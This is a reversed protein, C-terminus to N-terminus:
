EELLQQAHEATITKGDYIGVLLTKGFGQDILERQYRFADMINDFTKSTTYRTGKDNKDTKSYDLGLYKNVTQIPISEDDKFLGVQVKFKVKSKDVPRQIEDMSVEEELGEAMPTSENASLAKQILVENNDSADGGQGSVGGDKEAKDVLQGILSDLDNYNDMDALEEQSPGDDQQQGSSQSAAQDQEGSTGAGITQQEQQAQGNQQQTTQESAGSADGTTGTRGTDQGQQDDGTQQGDTGEQQGQDQGQGQLNAPAVDGQQQGSGQGTTDSASQADSAQQSGDGTGQDQQQDLLNQGQDFQIERQKEILKFDLNVSKVGNFQLRYEENELEYGEGFVNVMSITYTGSGPISLQYHGHEDTLASVKHGDKKRVATVRVDAKDIDGNDSYKAKDVVLKGQVRYSEVLPIYLTQDGTMTVDQKRGGVVYLGGLDVLPTFEAKYSGEPMNEYSMKGEPGSVLDKQVFNRRAVGLTDTSDNHTLKMQIDAVPPEEEDRKGNNNLDEFCIVELDHYKLRPQPIDFSKRIGLFLNFNRNRITGFEESRRTNTSINNSLNIEWGRGLKFLINANFNINERDAPMQFLYNFAANVLITRNRFYKRFSPRVLIVERTPVADLFGIQAPSLLDPGSTYFGTFRWYKGTYNLGVRFTPIGNSAIDTTSTDDNSVRNDALGISANPSISQFPSLRFRASGYLNYNFSNFETLTNNLEDYVLRYNRRVRPGFQYSVDYRTALNMLLRGYENLNRNGPEFFAAPYLSRRGDGRSYIGLVQYKKNIRYRGQAFWRARNSSRLYNNLTNLHSAFINLKKGSYNYNIDYSFGYVTTDLKYPRPSAPDDEFDVQSGLVDMNLSHGQLFSYQGGLKLSYATYNLTNNQEVVGETRLRLQPRIRRAYRVSAANNDLGIRNTALTAGISNKENLEHDAKIGSRPMTYLQTSGVNDGLSIRNRPDTYLIRFYSDQNLNFPRANQYGGRINFLNIRYNLAREEPFLVDGHFNLTYYPQLPSLINFIGLRVNLPTREDFLRNVYHSELKRFWVYSTRKKGKSSASIQVTSERWNKEYVHRERSGLTPDFMVPYTLTTDDRPGLKIFELLKKDKQDVLKLLEGVGHELKVVVQSNGRNKLRVKYESTPEYQNFFVTTQDVSFEWDVKKPISIYANGSYEEDNTELRSNLVYTNGGIAKPHIAVRLPILMSDGPALDVSRVPDMILNWKDPLSFKLNGSVTRDDFHNKVKLINIYLSDASQEVRGKVYSLVVTDELVVPEGTDPVVAQPGGGTLTDEGGTVTTDQGQVGSVALFFSFFLASISLLQRM